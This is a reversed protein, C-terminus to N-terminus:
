EYELAVKLQKLNERMISLYDDGSEIQAETLGGLPNLELVKGGTEAALTQAVKDGTFPETFVYNIGKEKLLKSLEALRFPSPESETSIGMVSIQKLGYRKALYGFAQHTVVFEKKRCRSLTNIYEEHLKDLDQELAACNEMYLDKNKPDVQILAERIAIAMEKAMVPDLWFHPDYEHSHGSEAVSNEASHEGSSDVLQEQFLSALELVATNNTGVLSRVKDAWPELGAGNYIFLECTELEAIQRPSPEWNHPDASPPIMTEVEIGEGAIRSTLYYIPYISTYVKKDNQQSHNSCGSFIVACLLLIILLARRM